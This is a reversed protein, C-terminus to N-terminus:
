WGPCGGSGARRDRGSRGAGSSGPWRVAIGPRVATIVGQIRGDAMHISARRSDIRRGSSSSWTLGRPARGPPATLGLAACLALVRLVPRRAAFVLAGAIVAIALPVWRLSEPAPLTVVVPGPRSPAPRPSCRAPPSFVALHAIVGVVAATIGTLAAALTRNSRLAESYPAGLFIFLFCPVFTVWTVLLSAVVGAVWPDWPGPDAYAGLFAM